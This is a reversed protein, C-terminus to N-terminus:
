RGGIDKTERGHRARMFEATTEHGRFQGTIFGSYM